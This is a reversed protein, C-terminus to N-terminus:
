RFAPFYQNGVKITSAVGGPMGGLLAGGLTGGLGFLGGMAANNSGVEAQYQKMANNYNNQVMGAYDVGGVSTQPTSTYGPQSVQSGSMLAAIENLPQNRETLIDNVATQHGSLLLSNLADNKSQDLRTMETKWADSGPRIGSNILQTRRSEEDRAFQPSLRATGLQFLRDEVADNSLNVNSGLIDNIKGSATVGAQGLNLKSTNSL